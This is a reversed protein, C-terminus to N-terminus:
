CKAFTAVPSNAEALATDSPVAERDEEELRKPRLKFQHCITVPQGAAQKICCKKINGFM